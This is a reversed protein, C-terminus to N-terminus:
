NNKVIRDILEDGLTRKTEIHNIVARVFPNEEFVGRVQEFDDKQAIMDGDVGFGTRSSLSFEKKADEYIMQDLSIVADKWRVVIDVIDEKTITELSLNFYSKIKDWAWTWELIYYKQHLTEFCTNVDYLNTIVDKEIHEILNEIESRPAILGSLDLWDSLGSDTDPKLYVKIEEISKCPCDTLRSILSNGLFKVIAINYLDL